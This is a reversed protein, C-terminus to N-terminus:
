RRAPQMVWVRLLLLRHYMVFEESNWSFDMLIQCLGKHELGSEKRVSSRAMRPVLTQGFQGRSPRGTEEMDLFRSAGM